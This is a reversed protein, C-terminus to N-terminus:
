QRDYVAMQAIEQGAANKGHHTVTLTKRDKSVLTSGLVM